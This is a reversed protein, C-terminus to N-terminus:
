VPSSKRYIELSIFSKHWAKIYSASHWTADYGIQCLNGGVLVTFRHLSRSEASPDSRGRGMVPKGLGRYNRPEATYETFTVVSGPDLYSFATNPTPTATELLSEFSELSRMPVSILDGNWSTSFSVPRYVYVGPVEIPSYDRDQHRNRENIRM